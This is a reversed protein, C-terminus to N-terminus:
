NSVQFYKPSGNWGNSTSELVGTGGGATPASLGLLTVKESKNELNAYLACLKGDGSVIYMYFSKTDTGAKPDKPINSLFESYQPNKTRIEQILDALDYDGEGAEPLFCSGSVLRGYQAIEAKRKADRAKAIVSNAAVFIITSLIAIIAIVVVTEILTFAQKNKVKNMKKFPNKGGFVIKPTKNNIFDDPIGYKRSYLTDISCFLAKSYDFGLTESVQNVIKESKGEIEVFPELFPWTDITIEADDLEWLERRSEQYAKERCGTAVLFSEAKKFDDVKLCIEKQNEIKGGTVIKLSMTIKDAEDRVRLWGGKIEHGEPLNFVVRKQLFEPRVLKAGAKKLRSRIDKKNIAPFTAEYETKM